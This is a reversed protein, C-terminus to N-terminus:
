ERKLNTSSPAALRSCSSTQSCSARTAWRLQRVRVICGIPWDQFELTVGRRGRVYNTARRQPHYKAFLAGVAASMTFGGPGLSAALGLFGAPSAAPVCTTLRGPSDTGPRDPRQGARRRARSRHLLLAFEPAPPSERDQM